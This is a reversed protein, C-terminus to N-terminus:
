HSGQRKGSAVKPVGTVPSYLRLTELLVAHCRKLKAFAGDYTCTAHPESSFVLEIEERIWQQVDPSPALLSLSFSLAIFVTDQGAFHINFFNGLIENTSLTSKRVKALDNDSETSTTEMARVLPILIDGPVDDNQNIAETEDALVKLLISKYTAAACGIRALKQPVLWGTLYRYPVLMLFIVNDLVIALVERYRQATDGADVTDTADKGSRAQPFATTALVNFTLAQLDEQLHPCADERETKWKKLLISLHIDLDAGNRRVFNM